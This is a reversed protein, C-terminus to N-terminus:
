KEKSNMRLNMVDAKPEHFWIGTEANWWGNAQISSDFFRSWRNDDEFFWLSDSERYWYKKGSVQDRSKTWGDNSSIDYNAHRSSRYYSSPSSTAGGQLAMELNLTTQSPSASNLAQRIQQVVGSRNASTGADTFIWLEQVRQQERWDQPYPIIWAGSSNRWIALQEDWCDVSWRLESDVQLVERSAQCYNDLGNKLLKQIVEGRDRGAEPRAWISINLWDTYAEKPLRIASIKGGKEALDKALASDVEAQMHKICGPSGPIKIMHTPDTKLHEYNRSLGLKQCLEGCRHKQFFHRIGYDGLDGSGFPAFAGHATYVRPSTLVIKPRKGGCCTGKFNCVLMDGKSEEFTFHSFAGAIEESLEETSFGPTQEKQAVGLGLGPPADVYTSTYGAQKVFDGKLWNEISYHYGGGEQAGIPSCLHSDLFWFSINSKERFKMAFHRAVAASKCFASHSQFGGDQELDRAVLCRKACMMHEEPNKEGNELMTLGHVLRTTGRMCPKRRLFVQKIATSRTFNMGDFRFQTQAATFSKWLWSKGLDSAAFLKDARASEFIFDGQPTRDDSHGTCRDDCEENGNEEISPLAGANIPLRSASGDQM